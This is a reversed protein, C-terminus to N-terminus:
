GTYKEFLQKVIAKEVNESKINLKTFGSLVVSELAKQRDTLKGINVELRDQRREIEELQHTQQVAKALLIEQTEVLIHLLKKVEEM